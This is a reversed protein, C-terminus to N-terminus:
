KLMKLLSTQVYIKEGLEDIEKEKEVHEKEDRIQEHRIKNSDMAQLNQFRHGERVGDGGELERGSWEEDGEHPQKIKVGLWPEGKSLYGM